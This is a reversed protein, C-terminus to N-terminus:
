EKNILVSSVLDRSGEVHVRVWYQGTNWQGELELRYPSEPIKDIMKTMLVRGYVDYVAVMGSQNVRSKLDLDIYDQAPNPYLRWNSEDFVLQVLESYRASGNQTIL